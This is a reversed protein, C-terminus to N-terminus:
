FNFDKKNIIQQKKIFNILYCVTYNYMEKSGTSPKYYYEGANVYECEIYGTDGIQPKDCNWNPALTTTIYRLLSNNQEDLNKFVYITYQGPQIAVVEGFYTTRM